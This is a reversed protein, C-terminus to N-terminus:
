SRLVMRFTALDRVLCQRIQAVAHEFVRSSLTGDHNVYATFTASVDPELRWVPWGIQHNVREIAWALKPLKARQRRRLSGPRRREVV